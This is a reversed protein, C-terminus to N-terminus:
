EDIVDCSGDDALTPVAGAGDPGTLPKLVAVGTSPPGEIREVCAFSVLEGDGICVVDGISAPKKARTLTVRVFGDTDPEFTDVWLDVDYYSM